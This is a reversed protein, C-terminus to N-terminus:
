TRVRQSVSPERSEVPPTQVNVRHQPATQQVAQVVAKSNGVDPAINSPPKPEMQPYQWSPPIDPPVSAAPPEKAKIFLGDTTVRTTVAPKESVAIQEGKEKVSPHKATTHHAVHERVSVDPAPDSRRSQSVAPQVNPVAVKSDSVDAPTDSLSEPPPERTQSETRSRQIQRIARETGCVIRRPVDAATDEIRDSGYDEGSRGGQAVDRFQRRLRETGDDLGRRVLEKPVAPIKEKM